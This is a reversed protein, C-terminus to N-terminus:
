RDAPLPICYHKGQYNAISHPATTATTQEESLALSAIIRPAHFFTCIFFLIAVSVAVPFQGGAVSYRTTSLILPLRLATKRM